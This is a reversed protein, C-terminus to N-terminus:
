YEDDPASASAPGFMQAESVGSPALDAVIDLFNKNVLSAARQLLIPVPSSPEHQEYYRCIKDIARLVDSNNRIDGTMASGGADAGGQDDTSGEGVVDGIGLRIMQQTMFQSVENLHDTLSSLDPTDVSGLQTGYLEILEQAALKCDTVEALTAELAEADVDQCAAEIVEIQPISQGEEAPLEGSIMKLHRLSYKGAVRSEVFPADLLNTITGDRDALQRIANCRMMSDGDDEDLKPHVTDWFTESWGKALRLGDALGSFGEMSLLANTLHVSVRLDRTRELLSLSLDRVTKWDPPIADTEADGMTQAPTGAAARDLEGFDLDYELDEGAPEQESIPTLLADIDL